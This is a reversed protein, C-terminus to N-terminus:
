AGKVCSESDNDRAELRALIQDPTALDPDVRIVVINTDVRRVSVRGAGARTVTHAMMAAHCTVGGLCERLVSTVRSDRCPLHKQGNFIGLIVNGLGALTIGGGTM